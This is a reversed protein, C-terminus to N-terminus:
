SIKPAFHYTIAYAQFDIQAKGPQPHTRAHAHRSVKKLLIGEDGFCSAIVGTDQQNSPTIHCCLDACVCARVFVCLLLALNVKAKGDSGALRNEREDRRILPKLRTLSGWAKAHSTCKEETMSRGGAGDSSHRRSTEPHHVCKAKIGASQHRFLKLNSNKHVKSPM